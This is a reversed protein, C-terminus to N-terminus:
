KADWLEEGAGAGSEGAGAGAAVSGRALTQAEPCDMWDAGSSVCVVAGNAVGGVPYEPVGVYEIDRSM